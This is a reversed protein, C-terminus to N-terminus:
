TVTVLKVWGTANVCVVAHQHWRRGWMQATDPDMGWVLVGNERPWQGKPDDSWAGVWSWRAKALADTLGRHALRNEEDSFCESKPNYATIWTSCEVGYAKHHEVLALSQCDIQLRVPPQTDVWYHTAQYADLLSQDLIPM